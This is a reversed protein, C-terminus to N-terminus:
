CHTHADPPPATALLRDAGETGIERMIVDKIM